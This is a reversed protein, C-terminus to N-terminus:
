CFIKTLIVLNLCNRINAVFNELEFDMAHSLEPLKQVSFTKDM